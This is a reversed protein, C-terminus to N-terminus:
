VHVHECQLRSLLAEVSAPQVQRRLAREFAEMRAARDFCAILNDRCLWAGRGPGARGVNLRGDADCHFRILESQPRNARCGVCTRM